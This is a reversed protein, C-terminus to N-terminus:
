MKTGKESWEKKRERGMNREEDNLIPEWKPIQKGVRLRVYSINQNKQASEM